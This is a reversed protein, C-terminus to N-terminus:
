PVGLQEVSCCGVVGSAVWIDLSGGAGYVLTSKLPNQKVIIGMSYLLLRSSCEVAALRTLHWQSANGHRARPSICLLEITNDSKGVIIKSTQSVSGGGPMLDGSLIENNNDVFTVCLVWANLTGSSAIKAISIDNLPGDGGQAVPIAHMVQFHSCSPVM